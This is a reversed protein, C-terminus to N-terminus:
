QRRPTWFTPEHRDLVTCANRIGVHGPRAYTTNFPFNDVKLSILGGVDPPGRSMAKPPSLCCGRNPHSAHPWDVEAATGLLSRACHPAQPAADALHFAPLGFPAACVCARLRPRLHLGRLSATQSGHVSDLESWLSGVIDTNFVSRHRAPSGVRGGGCRARRLPRRRRPPAPAATPAQQRKRQRTRAM